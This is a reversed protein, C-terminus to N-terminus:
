TRRFITHVSGDSFKIQIDCKYDGEAISSEVPTIMLVVKGNAEDVPTGSVSFKLNGSDDKVQMLVQAETIDIPEGNEDNFCLNLAFSDGQRVTIMNCKVTGTM